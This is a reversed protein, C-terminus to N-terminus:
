PAEERDIFDTVDPEWLPRDLRAPQGCGPTLCVGRPFTAWCQNCARSACRPCALLTHREGVGLRERCIPCPADVAHDPAPAPVADLSFIAEVQGFFLHDGHVIESVGEDVRRAGVLVRAGPPVVIAYRRPARLGTEFPVISVSWPSSLSTAIEGRGDLRTPALRTCGRAEIRDGALLFLQPM